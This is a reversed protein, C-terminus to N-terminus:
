NARSDSRRPATRRRGTQHHRADAAHGGIITRSVRWCTNARNQFPSTSTLLTRHLLLHRAARVGILFLAVVFSRRGLVGAAIRVRRREVLVTEGVVLNRDCFVHDARVLVLRLPSDPTLGGAGPKPPRSPQRVAG